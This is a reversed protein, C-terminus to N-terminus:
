KNFKHIKNLIKSKLNNRFSNKGELIKSKIIIIIIFIM